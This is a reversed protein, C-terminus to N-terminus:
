PQLVEDPIVGTQVRWLAAYAGRRLLLDDHRGTEIIRGQDLVV